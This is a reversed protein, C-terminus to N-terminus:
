NDNLTVAIKYPSEKFLYKGLVLEIFKYYTSCDTDGEVQDSWNWKERDNM